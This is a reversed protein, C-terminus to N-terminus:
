QKESYPTLESVKVRFNALQWSFGVLCYRQKGAM